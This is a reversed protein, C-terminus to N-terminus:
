LSSVLSNLKNGKKINTIKELPQLNSLAWCKKFNEDEMSTYPLLSQPYIHDLHWYSGYNDWTMKDDFLSELHVKLEEMTYLLHKLISIRSKKGKLAYNILKSCNGRLKFVPDRKNREKMYENHYIKLKEKNDIRYQKLKDKNDERYKKRYVKIEEKHITDYQKQRLSIYQKNDIYYQDQQSLIHEKNDTYYQKLYVTRDKKYQKKYQKNYIKQCDKCTNEKKVFLNEDGEFNCKRCTKNM